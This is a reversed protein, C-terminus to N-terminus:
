RFNSNSVSVREVNDFTIVGQSREFRIGEIRAFSVNEILIAHYELEATNQLTLSDFTVMVETGPTEARIVVNQQIRVSEVVEYHGEAIRMEVYTDNGADDENMNAVFELM